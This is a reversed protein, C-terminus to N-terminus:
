HLENHSSDPSAPSTVPAITTTTDKRTSDAAAKEGPNGKKTNAAQKSSSEKQEMGGAQLYKRMRKGFIYQKPKEPKLGEDFRYEAGLHPPQYIKPACAPLLLIVSFVPIFIKIILSMRESVHLNMRQQIGSGTQM